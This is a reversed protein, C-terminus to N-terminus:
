EARSGSTGRGPQFGRWRAAHGDRAHRIALPAGRPYTGAAITPGAHLCRREFALLTSCRSGRAGPRRVRVGRADARRLGYSRTRQSRSRSTPRRRRARTPSSVGLRLSARRGRPISAVRRDRGDAARRRHSVARSTRRRHWSFRARSDRSRTSRNTLPLGGSRALRQSFVLRAPRQPAAGDGDADRDRARRRRGRHLYAAPPSSARRTPCAPPLLLALDAVLAQTVVSGSM